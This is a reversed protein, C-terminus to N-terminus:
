GTPRPPEDDDPVVSLKAGGPDCHSWPAAEDLKALADAAIRRIHWLRERTGDKSMVDGGLLRHVEIADCLMGASLEALGSISYYFRDSAVDASADRLAERLGPRWVCRRDTRLDQLRGDLRNQAAAKKGTATASM